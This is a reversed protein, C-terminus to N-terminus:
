GGGRRLSRGSRTVGVGLLLVAGLSAVTAVLFPTVTDGLLGRVVEVVAVVVLLL